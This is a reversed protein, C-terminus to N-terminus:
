LLGLKNDIEKLHTRFKRHLKNLYSQSTITSGCLVPYLSNPLELM